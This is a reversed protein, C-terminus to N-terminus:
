EILYTKVDSQTKVLYDFLNADCDDVNLIIIFYDECNELLEMVEIKLFM